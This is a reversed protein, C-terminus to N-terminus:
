WRERIDARLDSPSSYFYGQMYQVFTKTEPDFAYTEGNTPEIIFISYLSDKGRHLILLWAHNCEAFREKDIDLNGAVIVSVIGQKYLINWIDVAMDNCDFVGEIYTNEKHYSSNFSILKQYLELAVWSANWYESHKVVDARPFSHSPSTPSSPPITYGPSLSNTPYSASPTKDPFINFAFSGGIVLLVVGILGLFGTLWPGTKKQEPIQQKYRYYGQQQIQYNGSAQQYIPPPRSQQQTPWNLQM